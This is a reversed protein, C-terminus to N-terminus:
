LIIGDAKLLGQQFYWRLGRIRLEQRKGMRPLQDLPYALMPQRLMMIQRAAISRIPGINGMTFLVDARFDRCMRALVVNDFYLRWLDNLPRVKEFHLRCNPPLSLKEYGYGAPVIALFEHEPGNAPVLKLINIADSRGGGARFGLFHLLIRM